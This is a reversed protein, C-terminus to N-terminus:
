AAVFHQVHFVCLLLLSWAEAPPFPTAIPERNAKAVEATEKHHGDTVQDEAASQYHKQPARM